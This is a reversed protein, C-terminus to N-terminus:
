CNVQGREYRLSAYNSTILSDPVYINMRLILAQPM